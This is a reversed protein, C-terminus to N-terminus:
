PGPPHTGSLSGWVPKTLRRTGVRTEDIPGPTVQPLCRARPTEHGLLSKGAATRGMPGNTQVTKAICTSLHACRERMVFIKILAYPQRRCHRAAFHLSHERQLLTGGSEGESDAIVLLDASPMATRKCFKWATTFSSDSLRSAGAPLEAPPSLARIPASCRAQLNFWAFGRLVACKTGYGMLTRM